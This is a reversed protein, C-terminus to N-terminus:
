IFIIQIQIYDTKFYFKFFYDGNGCNIKFKWIECEYKGDSGIM